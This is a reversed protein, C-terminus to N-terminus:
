SATPLWVEFLAGGYRSKDVNIEGGSLTVLEKVIALGVGHGMKNEDARIGRGLVQGLKSRPVGPGDDEVILHLASKGSHLTSEITINVKSYCWKYANDILNGAIEYWDGEDCGISTVTEEGNMMCSVGKTTYVKDLSEIIKETVPVVAFYNSLHNQGHAAARRLQYDVIQDLRSLQEEIEQNTEKSVTDNEICGRVITLPTKLSHALDALSNRYRDLCARESDLLANLNDVLGKIEGPYVSDLRTNEGSEIARLDKAIRSLPSLGWRLVVYQAAVLLVGTGILWLWLTDRFDAIKEVLADQNEAVVFTYTQDTGDKGEWVVSYYLALRNPDAPLQRVEAEGPSVSIYPVIVDLASGSQWIMVGENNFVFGYLGSGPTSFRSEPLTRTLRIEEEQDRTAASLLAYVYIQLRNQM